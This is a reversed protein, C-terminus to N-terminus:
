EIADDGCKSQTDEMLPQAMTKTKYYYEGAGVLTETGRLMCEERSV